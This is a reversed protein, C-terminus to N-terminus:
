NADMALSEGRLAELFHTLVAGARDTEWIAAIHPFAITPTLPVSDIMDFPRYLAVESASLISLYDREGMLLQVRISSNAEVCPMPPRLNQAAFADDFINRMVSGLPPLIWPYRHLDRWQPLEQRLIAHGRRAVIRVSDAFLVETAFGAQLAPASLAGIIVDIERKFLRELLEPQPAEIVSVFVGPWDQHLRAIAKPLLVRPLGTGVHLRGQLGSRVDQLDAHTRRVDGLMRLAHARLVEGEQTLAFRRNRVFLPSGVVDELDALWHSLAPQTMHLQLAAGTLSGAEHLALFIELHRIKLRRAWPISELINVM